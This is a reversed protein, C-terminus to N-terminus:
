TPLTLRHGPQDSPEATPNRHLLQVGKEAGPQHPHQHGGATTCRGECLARLAAAWPIRASLRVGDGCLVPPKVIGERRRCWAKIQSIVKVGRQLRGGFWGLRHRLGEGPRALWTSGPEGCGLPARTSMKPAGPSPFREGLYGPAMGAVPPPDPASLHAGVLKPSWRRRSRQRRPLPAPLPSAGPERQRALLTPVLM